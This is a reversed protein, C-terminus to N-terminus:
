KAVINVIKDPVVVVKVLEKGDLRAKVKDSSLAIKELEEKAEGKK